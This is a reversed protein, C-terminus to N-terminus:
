VLHFNLSYLEHSGHIFLALKRICETTLLINKKLFLSTQESESTFIIFIKNSVDLKTKIDYDIANLINTM